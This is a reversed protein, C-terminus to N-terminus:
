LPENWNEVYAALPAVGGTAVPTSPQVSVVVVGFTQAILVALV